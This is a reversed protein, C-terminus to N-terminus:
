TSPHQLGRLVVAAPSQNEGVAMTRVLICAHFVAVGFSLVRAMCIKKLRPPLHPRTAIWQIGVM